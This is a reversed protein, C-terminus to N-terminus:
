VHVGKSDGEPVHNCWPLGSAQESICLFRDGGFRIVICVKLIPFSRDLAGM